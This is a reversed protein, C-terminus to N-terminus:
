AQFTDGSCRVSSWKMRISQEMADGQIAPGHTVLGVHCDNEFLSYRFSFVRSSNKLTVLVKSTSKRKLAIKLTVAFGLLICFNVMSCGQGM